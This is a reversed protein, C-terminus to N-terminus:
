CTLRFDTAQLFEKFLFHGQTRRAVIEEMAEYICGVLEVIAVLVVVAIQQSTVRPEFAACAVRENGQRTQSQADLLIIIELQHHLRCLTSKTLKHFAFRQRHLNILNFLGVHRQPRYPSDLLIGLFATFLTALFKIFAQKEVDDLEDFVVLMGVQSKFLVPQQM